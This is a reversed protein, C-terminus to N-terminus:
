NSSTAISGVRPRRWKSTAVSSITAREQAAANAVAGRWSEVVDTGPSSDTSRLSACSEAAFIRAVSLGQVPPILWGFGNLLLKMKLDSPERDLRIALM